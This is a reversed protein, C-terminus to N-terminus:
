AQRRHRRALVTGLALTGLAVVAYTSPEPVAYSISYTFSHVTFGNIATTGSNIGETASLSKLNASLTTAPTLALTTNTSYIGSGTSTSSTLPASFDLTNGVGLNFTLATITTGNIAAENIFNTPTSVTVTDTVTSGNTTETSLVTYNQGDYGAGTFTTPVGFTATLVSGLVYGTGSTSNSGVIDFSFTDGPTVLSPDAVIAQSASAGALLTAAALTFLAAKKM